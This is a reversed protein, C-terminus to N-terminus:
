RLFNLHSGKMDRYIEVKISSATAFAAFWYELYVLGFKRTSTMRQACAGIWYMMLLFDIGLRQSQQFINLHQSIILLLYM